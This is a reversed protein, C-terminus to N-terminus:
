QRDEARNDIWQLLAPFLTLSAVMCCLLGICAVLGLSKFGANSASLMGAFGLMTTLTTMFAAGGTTRLAYLVNHRGEEQYRHLIHIANDIGIGLVTPLVIMNFINLKIGVAGMIGFMMVMGVTIPMVTIAVNKVNRYVLVLMIIICTLVAVISTVAEGRMLNLMDVFIMAETAPYFTKGNAKIERIDDVFAQAEDLKSTGKSNYIYVLYGGSDQVGTYVLKLAAPLDDPELEGIGVYESFRALSELRSDDMEGFDEILTSAEDLQRQIQEIVELRAAQEASDPVITYISQVQEITSVDADRNMIGEVSEVVAAVDEISEVFVVARDTALPFVKRINVKMPELASMDARLKSFDDEFQLQFSYYLAVGTLAVGGLLWLGPKRFRHDAEFNRERKRRAPVRYLHIKEALVMLAPFVLYMSVLALAVGTGSIFGFEYFARFDTFMLAYFAFITTMAAMLSARGTSNYIEYMAENWPRGHSRAEEYRTLNHIGFDIGLGFLILVLFVTVLNLGGLVVQTIGFTWLFGVALPLGIYLLSLLRRYFLVLALLIGGISWYASSKVDSIIADFEEVRNRVRGGLNVEMDANFSSPDLGVVLDDITQLLDRSYGIGTTSGGPLVVLIAVEGTEDTFLRRETEGSDERNSDVQRYKSEIDSFDLSPPQDREQGRITISVPVDDVSFDLNGTEYDIREQLRRSVERLDEEDVYLLQHRKFIETDEAYEASSVWDLPVVKERLAALFSINAAPDPSTVVVNVSSYGGTKQIVKDLNIVSPVGEPMLSAIDTDLKLQAALQFAFYSVVGAVILVLWYIKGLLKIWSALIGQPEPPTSM